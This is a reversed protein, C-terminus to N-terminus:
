CLSLSFRCDGEYKKEDRKLDEILMKGCFTGRHCGKWPTMRPAAAENRLAYKADVFDRKRWGQGHRLLREGTKKKQGLFHFM